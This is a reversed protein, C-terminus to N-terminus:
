ARYWRHGFHWGDHGSKGLRDLPTRGLGPVSEPHPGSQKTPATETM